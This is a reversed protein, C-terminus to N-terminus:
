WIEKNKNKKNNSKMGFKYKQIKTFKTNSNKYNRFRHDITNNNESMLEEFRGKEFKLMELEQRFQEQKEIRQELSLSSGINIEDEYDEYVPVGSYISWSDDSRNDWFSDYDSHSGYPYMEEYDDFRRQANIQIIVKKFIIHYTNDYMYILSLIDVPLTIFINEM